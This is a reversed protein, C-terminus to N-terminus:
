DTYVAEGSCFAVSRLTIPGQTYQNDPYYRCGYTDLSM